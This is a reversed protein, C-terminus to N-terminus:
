GSTTWIDRRPAMLPVNSMSAAAHDLVENATVRSRMVFPPSLHVMMTTTTVMFAKTLINELNYGNM